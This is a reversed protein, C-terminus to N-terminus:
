KILKIKEADIPPTFEFMDDNLIEDQIWDAFVIRYRPTDPKLIYDIMMKLPQFKGDSSVWIQFTIDEKTGAIHYSEKEGVMTLGLCILNDSNELIHDVFDPYFVDAGPFEVGYTSSVSDIFEILTMTTPMSAYRNKDISYLLFLNGNYFIKNHGKDGKKEIFLKDPGKLFVKGFESHTVMGYEESNKDFESYYKFSCTELESIRDSMSDLISIALSDFQSYSKEPFASSCFSVALFLLIALKLKM